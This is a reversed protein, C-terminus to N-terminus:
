LERDALPFVDTIVFARIRAPLATGAPIDVRVQRIAGHVVKLSIAKRYDLSV